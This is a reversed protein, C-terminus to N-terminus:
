LRYLKKYYDTPTGDAHFLCLETIKLGPKGGKRCKLLILNHEANPRHRVLCLEKPELGAKSASACIQALCEPKHVLYFDGGYRLAYAAAACLDETTCHDQRRATSHQMSAPGGTFYPPNSLCLDFSGATIHQRLCRIDGCISVMRSQLANSVINNLAATHAAESLEIGTVQCNVDKACLLVGLTGCGAGLDLAHANKPLRIFDSLLMSDTSLPFVGDPIDLTFGNALREMIAEM